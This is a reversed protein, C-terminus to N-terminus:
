LDGCDSQFGLSNSLVPPKSCCEACYWCPYSLGELCIACSSREPRQNVVGFIRDGLASSSNEVVGAEDSDPLAPECQPGPELSSSPEPETENEERITSLSDFEKSTESAEAGDATEDEPLLAPKVENEFQNMANSLTENADDCANPRQEIDLSTPEIWRPLAPVLHSSYAESEISQFREEGKRHAELAKETESVKDRPLRDRRLLLLRHSPGHEGTMGEKRVGTYDWCSPELCFNVSNTYGDVLKCDLCTVRGQSGPNVTQGCADCTCVSHIFIRCPKLLLLLAFISLCYRTILSREKRLILQDYFPADYCAVQQRLSQYELLEKSSLVRGLGEQRVALTIYRRRHDRRERFYSWAWLRKRVLHLVASCAYQWLARAKDKVFVSPAPRFRVIQSPTRKLIFSGSHTSTDPSTGWTGTITGSLVDLKGAYNIDDYHGGVVQLCFSVEFVAKEDTAICSGTGRYTDGRFTSTTLSFSNSQSETPENNIEYAWMQSTTYEDEEDM